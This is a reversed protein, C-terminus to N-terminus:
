KKALGQAETTFSLRIEGNMMRPGTASRVAGEPVLLTYTAGQKLDKVPDLTLTAGSVKKRIKTKKGAEDLLAIKKYAPRKKVPVNFTINITKGVSVGEEDPEPDAATVVLAGPPV